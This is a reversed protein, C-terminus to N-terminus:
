KVKDDENSANANNTDDKNNDDIDNNKVAATLGIDFSRIFLM